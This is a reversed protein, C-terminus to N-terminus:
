PGRAKISTAQILKCTLLTQSVNEGSREKIIEGTEKKHSTWYNNVFSKAFLPVSQILNNALIKM